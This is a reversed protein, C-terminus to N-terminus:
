KNSSCCSRTNALIKRLGMCSTNRLFPKSSSDSTSRILTLFFLLPLGFIAHATCTRFISKSIQGNFKCVANTFSDLQFCITRFNQRGGHLMGGAAQFRPPPYAAARRRIILPTLSHLAPYQYHAYKKVTQM